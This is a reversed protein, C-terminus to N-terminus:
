SVSAACIVTQGESGVLACDSAHSFIVSAVASMSESPRICSVVIRLEFDAM